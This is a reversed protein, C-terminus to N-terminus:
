KGPAHQLVQNVMREPVKKNLAPADAISWKDTCLQNKLFKGFIQFDTFIRAIDNRIPVDIGDRVDKM